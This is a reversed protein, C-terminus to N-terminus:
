HSSESPLAPGTTRLMAKNWSSLKDFLNDTRRLSKILPGNLSEPLPEGCMVWHSRMEEFVSKLDTYEWIEDYSSPLMLPISRTAPDKRKSLSWTRDEYKVQKKWQRLIDFPYGRRGLASMFEQVKEEFLAYSSSIVMYRTLEAKIFAKKVSQPHASSWPIYQHKNLRKRYVRSQVGVPGFGQDFFFEIDLFSRPERVSNIEWGIKFPQLKSSIFDLCSQCASKTGKFVLFIDDIYRQYLILGDKSVAANVIEPILVEKLGLNVNAFAPACATGMAIGQIQHFHEENFSFCNASM